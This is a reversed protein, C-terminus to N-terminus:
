LFIYFFSSNTRILSKDISILLFRWQKKKGEKQHDGEAACWCNGLTMKKGGFDNAEEEKCSHQVNALERSCMKKGM